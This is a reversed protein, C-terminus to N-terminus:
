VRDGPSHSLNRTSVVIRKNLKTYDIIDLKKSSSKSISEQLGVLLEKSTETKRGIELILAAQGKADLDLISKPSTSPPGPKDLAYVNVEVFKKIAKKDETSTLSKHRKTLRGNSICSSILIIFLFSFRFFPKM